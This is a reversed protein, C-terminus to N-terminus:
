DQSGGSLTIVPTSMLNGHVEVFATIHVFARPDGSRGLVPGRPLPYVHRLPCVRRSPRRSPCLRAAAGGAPLGITAPLVAAGPLM